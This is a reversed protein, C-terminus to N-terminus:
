SQGGSRCLAPLASPRHRRWRRHSTVSSLNAGALRRRKTPVLASDLVSLRQLHASLGQFGVLAFEPCCISGRLRETAQFVKTRPFAAKSAPSM